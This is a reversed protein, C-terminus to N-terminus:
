TCRAMVEPLLALWTVDRVYSSLLHHVKLDGLRPLALVECIFDSIQGFIGVKGGRPPPPTFYCEPFRFDQDSSIYVKWKGLPPHQLLVQALNPYDLANQRDSKTVHDACSTECYDKSSVLSVCEHYVVNLVDTDEYPVMTVPNWFANLGHFATLQGREMIMSPMLLIWKDLEAALGHISKSWYPHITHLKDFQRMEM